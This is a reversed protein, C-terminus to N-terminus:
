EAVEPAESEDAVENVREMTQQILVLLDNFQGVSRRLTDLQLTYRREKGHRRVSVLSCQRLQQLHHSVTSPTLDFNAAIETVSFSRMEGAGPTCLFQLIQQRTEDAMARLMDIDYILRPSRLRFKRRTTM